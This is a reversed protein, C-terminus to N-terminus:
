VPTPGTPNVACVNGIGLLGVGGTATAWQSTWGAPAAQHRVRIGVTAYGGLLASLLPGSFVTRYGSGNATTTAGSTMVTLSTPNQGAAAGYEITDVAGNYQAPLAWDVTITPALGLLGPAATCPGTWTIPAVVYATFTGHANEADTWAADTSTVPGFHIAGVLCLMGLIAGVMMPASRRAAM